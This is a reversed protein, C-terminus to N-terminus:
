TVLRAEFFSNAASQGRTTASQTYSKFQVYDTSGNMYLHTVVQPRIAGIHGNAAVQTGNKEIWIGGEQTAGSYSDISARFYWLGAVTPTFRDTASSWMADAGGYDDGADEYDITHAGYGGPYAISTNTSRKVFYFTNAGYSELSALVTFVGDATKLVQYTYVDVTNAHGEGPTGGLWKTTVGDTTNDIQVTTNRYETSGITVLHKIVLSQGTSMISNLTASSDTSATINITWDTAADSTYYLVQQTQVNFDVTASAAIASMTIREKWTGLLQRGSLIIDESLNTSSITTGNFNLYMLNSPSIMADLGQDVRFNKKSM